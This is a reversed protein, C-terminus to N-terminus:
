GQDAPMESGRSDRSIGVSDAGYPASYPATVGGEEGAGESEPRHDPRAGPSVRVRHPTGASKTPRSSRKANFANKVTLDGRGDALM